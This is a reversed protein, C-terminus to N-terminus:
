MKCGDAKSYILYKFICWMWMKLNIEAWILMVLEGHKPEYRAYANEVQRSKGRTHPRPQGRRAHQGHQQDWVWGHRYEVWGTVRTPVEEQGHLSMRSPTTTILRPKTHVQLYSTNNLCSKTDIQLYSINIIGCYIKLSIM